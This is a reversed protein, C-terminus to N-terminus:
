ITTPASMSMFICSQSITLKSYGRFTDLFRNEHLVELYQLIEYTHINSELIAYSELGNKNSRSRRADHHKLYYQGQALSEM